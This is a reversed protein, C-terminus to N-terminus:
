DPPMYHQGFDRHFLLYADRVVVQAGAKLGRLVITQNGQSPGPEVETPVLGNSTKQLVWWRGNDLILAETPIAVVSRAEGEIFVEGRQGGQWKPSNKANETGEFYVPVGGDPRLSPAAHALRVPLPAGDEAPQFTAAQRSSLVGVPADYFVAELWLDHQPQMKLVPNGAAVRDGNASQLSVIRGTIPSTITSLARLRALDTKADALQARAAALQAKAADLQKRDSFKPYVEVAAKEADLAAKFAHEAAARDAKAKDMAARQEAGGIRAIVDGAKLQQGPVVALDEIVGELGAQVTLVQIPVVQGYAHFRPRYTQGHAAVTVPAGAEAADAPLPASLVSGFVMVAIVFKLM